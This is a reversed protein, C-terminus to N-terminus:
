APIVRISAAIPPAGHRLRYRVRGRHADQGNVRQLGDVPKQSVQPGAAAPERVPLRGSPQHDEPRILEHPSTATAPEALQHRLEHV